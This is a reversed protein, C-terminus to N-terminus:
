RRKVVGTSLLINWLRSKSTQRDDAETQSELSALLQALHKQLQLYGMKQQMRNRKTFGGPCDRPSAECMLRLGARKDQQLPSLPYEGSAIYETIATTYLLVWCFLVAEIKLSINRSMM